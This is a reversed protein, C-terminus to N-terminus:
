IKSGVPSLGGRRDRLGRWPKAVWIFTVVAVVLPFPGTETYMGSGDVTVRSGFFPFLWSSGPGESGSDFAGAMYYASLFWFVAISLAMATLAAVTAVLWRSRMGPEGAIGLALKRIPGLGSIAQRAGVTATADMLNARLERRLPKRARRAVFGLDLWFNYRAVAWEIRARDLVSRITRTM